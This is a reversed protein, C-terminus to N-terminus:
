SLVGLSDVVLRGNIAVLTLSRVVLGVASALAAYHAACLIFNSLDSLFDVALHLSGLAGLTDIGCFSDLIDLTNIAHLTVRPPRM